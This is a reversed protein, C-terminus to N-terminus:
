PSRVSTSLRIVNQTSEVEFSTDGLDWFIKPGTTRGGPQSAGEITVQGLKNTISQTKLPPLAGKDVVITWTDPAERQYNPDSTPLNFNITVPRAAPAANSAEIIARRLTCKGDIASTCTTSFSNNVDESTNVTLTVAAVAHSPTALLPQSTPYSGATLLAVLLATTIFRFM